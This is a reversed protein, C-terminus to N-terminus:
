GRSCSYPYRLGELHEELADEVQRAADAGHAEYLSDLVANKVAAQARVIALAFKKAVDEDLM